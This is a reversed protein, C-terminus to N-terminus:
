SCWLLSWATVSSTGPRYLAWCNRICNTKLIFCVLVDTGSSITSFQVCSKLTDQLKENATSFDADVEKVSAM